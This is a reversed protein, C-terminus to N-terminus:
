GELWKVVADTLLHLAAKIDHPDNHEFIENRLGRISSSIMFALMDQDGQSITRIQKSNMAEALIEKFLIGERHVLKKHLTNVAKIQKSQGEQDMSSWMADFVKRWQASTKIKAACFAFIKDRLTTSAAVKSNIESTVDDVISDLVAQFIDDRNKYYYYLSSRSRGTAAAVEDMTVKNPGYKHYLRIAAQLIEEQAIEDTKGASM